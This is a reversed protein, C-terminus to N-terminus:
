DLYHNWEMNTIVGDRLEFQLSELDSIEYTCGEDGEGSPDGLVSRMKQESDGIQLTGFPYGKKSVDVHNLFNNLYHLNFGNYNLTDDEVEDSVLENYYKDHQSDVPKGWLDKAKEIRQGFTMMVQLAMTYAATGYSEGKDTDVYKAFIWATGHKAPNDICYWADGDVHRVGIVILIDDNNAAGVVNSKTGPNDRLRVNNGTCMGLIPYGETDMTDNTRPQRAPTQQQTRSTNRSQTQKPTVRQSSSQAEQLYKKAIGPLDAARENTAITYARTHPYRKMFTKAEEDRDNNLWDLQDQRFKERAEKYNRLSNLGARYAQTLKKDAQAFGPDKLMKIYDEDSLAYASSCLLLMMMLAAFIKTRM